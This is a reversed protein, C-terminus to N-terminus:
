CWRRIHSLPRRGPLPRRYALHHYARLLRDRGGAHVQDVAAHHVGAGPGVSMCVAGGAVAWSLSRQKTKDALVGVPLCAVAGVLATATLLGLQTNGIGFAKELRGALASM